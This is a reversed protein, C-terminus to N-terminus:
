YIGNRLVLISTFIKFRSVMEKHLSNLNHRCSVCGEVPNWVDEIYNKMTYILYQKAKRDSNIILPATNYATNLFYPIKGLFVLLSFLKKFVLLIWINIPAGNFSITIDSLSESNLNQFIESRHDIKIEPDALQNLYIDTSFSQLDNANTVVARNVLRYLDSAYGIFLGANLYRQGSEMPPYRFTFLIYKPSPLSAFNYIYQSALNDDPHAPLIEASFLIRACTQYFRNLIKNPEDNFILDASKSVLIVSDADNEYSKLETELLDLLQISNRNTSDGDIDGNKLLKFPIAYRHGGFRQFGQSGDNAEGYNNLVLM